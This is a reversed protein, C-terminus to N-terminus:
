IRHSIVGKYKYITASTETFRIAEINLTLSNSVILIYAICKWFMHLYKGISVIDCGLASYDRLDGSHFSWVECQHDM